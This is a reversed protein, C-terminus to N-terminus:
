ADVGPAVAASFLRRPMTSGFITAGCIFLLEDRPGFTALALMMFGSTVAGPVSM